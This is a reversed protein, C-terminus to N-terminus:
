DKSLPLRYGMFLGFSYPQASVPETGLEQRNLFYGFTPEFVLSSGNALPQIYGLGVSVQWNSATIGEGNGPYTSSSVKREGEFVDVAAAVLQYYGLTPTFRLRRTALPYFHAGVQVSGQWMQANLTRNVTTPTGYLLFSSPTLGVLSFYSANNSQISYGIEEAAYNAGFGAFGTIMQNIRRELRGGLEFAFRRVFNRSGSNLAVSYDPVTQADLVKFNLKPLFFLELALKTNTVPMEPKGKADQERKAALMIEQKFLEEDVPTLVGPKAANETFYGNAQGQATKPTFVGNEDFLLDGEPLINANGQSIAANSNAAKLKRYVRARNADESTYTYQTQEVPKQAKTSGTVTNEAVVPVLTRTNSVKRPRRVIAARQAPSVTNQQPANAGRRDTNTKATEGSAHITNATQTTGGQAPQAVAPATVTAVSLDDQNTPALAIDGEIAALPAVAQKPATIQEFALQVQQKSGAALGLAVAVAVFWPLPKAYWPRKKQAELAAALRGWAGPAPSFEMEQLKQRMADEFENDNLM